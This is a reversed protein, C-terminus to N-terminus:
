KGCLWIGGVLFPPWAPAGLGAHRLMGPAAQHRFRAWLASPNPCTAKEQFSNFSLLPQFRLARMPPPRSLEGSIGGGSDSISGTWTEM